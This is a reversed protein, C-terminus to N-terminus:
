AKGNTELRKMFSKNIDRLDLVHKRIALLLMKGFADPLRGAICSELGYINSLSIEYTGDDNCTLLYGAPLVREINKINYAPITLQPPDIFDQHKIGDRYYHDEDFLSTMIKVDNAYVRWTASITPYLGCLVLHSCIDPAVFCETKETEIFNHIM